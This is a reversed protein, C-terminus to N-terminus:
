YGDMQLKEKRTGCILILFSICVSDICISISLYRIQALYRNTIAELVCLIYYRGYLSLSHTLFFGALEGFIKKPQNQQHHHQQIQKKETDRQAARECESHKNHTHTHTQAYM